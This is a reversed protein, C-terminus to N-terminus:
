LIEKMLYGSQSFGLRNTGYVMSDYPLIESPIGISVQEGHADYEGRTLLYTPRRLSSDRMVM